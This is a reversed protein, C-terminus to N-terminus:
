DELGILNCSKWVKIDWFSDSTYLQLHMDILVVFQHHLKVHTPAAHGPMGLSDILVELDWFSFSTHLQNQADAEHRNFNYILWTLKPPHPWTHGPMGLSDKLVKIDWHSIFTYLQNQAHVKMDLLALFQDHLKLHAHDPM